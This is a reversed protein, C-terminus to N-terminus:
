HAAPPGSRPPRAPARRARRQQRGAAALAGAGDARRGRARRCTSAGRRRRGRRRGRARPGLRHLTAGPASRETTDHGCGAGAQHARRAPLGVPQEDLLDGGEPGRATARRGLAAGVERAGGGVEARGRGVQVLHREEVSRGPLGRGGEGGRLADGGDVAGAGVNQMVMSPSPLEKAKSPCRSTPCGPRRPPPWGSRTRTGTRRRPRRPRGTPTSRGCRSGASSTSLWPWSLETEHAVCSRRRRQDVAAAGHQGPVPEAEGRRRGDGGLRRDGAGVGRAQGADRAGGRGEAAGDVGEAPHEAPVARGPAGARQDVVAVRRVAM